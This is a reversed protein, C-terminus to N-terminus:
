SRTTSGTRPPLAPRRFAASAASRVTAISSTARQTPRTTSEGVIEGASNIDWARSSGGGLDGLDTLHFLNVAAFVPGPAAALALMSFLVGCKRSIRM